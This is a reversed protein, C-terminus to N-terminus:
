VNFIDMPFRYTAGAMFADMSPQYQNKVKAHGRYYRWGATININPNVAYYVGAGFTVNVTDNSKQTITPATNFFFVDKSRMWHLGLLGYIGFGDQIEQSLRASGDVAWNDIKQSPAGGPATMRVSSPLYTWGLEVDFNKNFMYGGYVRGAFGNERSVVYGNVTNELNDWHSLGYGAEGGLFFGADTEATVPETFAGGYAMAAGSIGLAATGVIAGIILKNKFM